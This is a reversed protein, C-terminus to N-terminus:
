ICFNFTMDNWCFLIKDLFIKNSLLEVVSGEVFTFLRQFSFLILYLLVWCCDRLVYVYM